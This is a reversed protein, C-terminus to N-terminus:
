VEEVLKADYSVDLWGRCGAGPRGVYRHQYQSGRVPGEIGIVDKCHPCRVVFDAGDRSFRHVTLIEDTVPQPEAM